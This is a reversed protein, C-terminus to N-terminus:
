IMQLNMMATLVAGLSIAIGYPLMDHPDDGARTVRKGSVRRIVFWIVLLVLGALAVSVFLRLGDFLSFWGAVAAYLKADGAGVVRLAFLAMGGFLAITAHAASLGLAGIGGSAFSFILGAFLILLSLWNPIRRERWDLWSAPILLLGLLGYGIM